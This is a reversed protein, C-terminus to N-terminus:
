GATAPMELHQVIARLKVRRDEPPYDGAGRHITSRQDWMVLDGVSWRHTYVNDAGTAHGVLSEVLAVGEQIPVDRFARTHTENVYLVRRGTEPHVTVAPHVADVHAEAQDDQLSGDYMDGGPGAGHRHLGTLGNVRARTDDDLTEYAHCMDAFLTDGGRSPIELAYLIGLAPPDQTYSGDSHWTTARRVGFTDVSGDAAVNTLWSLGPFDAHRYRRLVHVQLPGFRRAFAHFGAADLSQGPFVLVKHEVLTAHIERLQADDLESGLQRRELRMGINASM